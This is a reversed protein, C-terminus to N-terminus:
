FNVPDRAGQLNQALRKLNSRNLPYPLLGPKRRATTPEFRWEQAQFLNNAVTSLANECHRHDPLLLSTHNEKLSFWTFAPPKGTNGAVCADSCGAVRPLRLSARLQGRYRFDLLASWAHRPCGNGHSDSRLAKQSGSGFEHWFRRRISANGAIGLYTIWPDRNGRQDARYRQRALIRKSPDAELFFEHNGPAFVKFRHPLEGLWDNFDVIANMSKSFMTFDGAHILIDGEPM